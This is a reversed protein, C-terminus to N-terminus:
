SAVTRSMLSPRSSSPCLASRRRACAILVQPWLGDTRGSVIDSEENEPPLVVNMEDTKASIIECDLCDPSLFVQCGSCKDVTVSPM